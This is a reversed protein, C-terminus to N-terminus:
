GVEWNLAQMDYGGWLGYQSAPHYIISRITKKKKKKKQSPPFTLPLKTLIHDSIRQKSSKKKKKKSVITNGGVGRGVGGGRMRYGGFTDYRCCPRTDATHIYCMNEKWFLHTYIYKLYQPKRLIYTAGGRGWRSSAKTSQM